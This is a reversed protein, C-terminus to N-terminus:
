SSFIEIITNIKTSKLLATHLAPCMRGAVKVFAAQLDHWGDERGVELSFLGREHASVPGRQFAGCSLTSKPLAPAEANGLSEEKRRGPRGAPVPSPEEASDCLWRGSAWLRRCLRASNSRTSDLGRNRGSCIPARRRGDELAVPRAAPAPICAACVPTTPPAPFPAQSRRGEM